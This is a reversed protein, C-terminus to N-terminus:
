DINKIYKIPNGAWIQRSPISKSVVSGAGIISEEGISIGKLLICSAGIFAGQKIIIPKSSIEREPNSLRNMLEKSHFDTDYIRCDGGIFVNDEITISCNSYFSSNSIGVNNGITIKAGKNIFFSCFNNGGIPNSRFNSNIRTNTGIKFTGFNRLRLFGKISNVKM